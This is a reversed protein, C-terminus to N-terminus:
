KELGKIEIVREDNEYLLIRVKEETNTGFYEKAAAVLIPFVRRLDGSAGTSTVTTKWLQQKEETERYKELDIANLIMYRFYTIITGVHTRSGTVGYQPTYTTTGSYSATNGYVNATGYTTSSSVGTQGWTPVSYSYTHSEPDGIGYSLYVAIEAEDFSMAKTYGIMALARDVYGAYERFQLDDERVDKIGSLLLYKTKFETQPANISDVNVNYQQHITACGTLLTVAIIVLLFRIKITM